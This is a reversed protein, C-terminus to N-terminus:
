RHVHTNDCPGKTPWVGHLKFGQDKSAVKTQGISCCDHTNECCPKTPLVLGSNIKRCRMCVCTHTRKCCCQTAENQSACAHARRRRLLHDALGKYGSAKSGQTCGQASKDQLVSTKKTQTHTSVAADPRGFGQVGQARSGKGMIRPHLRLNPQEAVSM